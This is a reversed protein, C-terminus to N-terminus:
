CPNMTSGIRNICRMSKLTAKNTNLDLNLDIKSTLFPKLYNLIVKYCSSFTIKSDLTMLFTERQQFMTTVKVRTVAYFLVIGKKPPPPPPTGKQPVIFTVEVVKINHNSCVNRGRSVISLRFLM